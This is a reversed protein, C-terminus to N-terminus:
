RPGEDPHVHRWCVPQERGDGGRDLQTVYYYVEGAPVHEDCVACDAGEADAPRSAWADMLAYTRVYTCTM